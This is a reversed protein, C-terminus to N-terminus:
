KVNYRCKININRFGLKEFFILFILNEFDLFVFHMFFRCLAIEDKVLIM